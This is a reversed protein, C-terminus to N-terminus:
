HCHSRNQWEAEKAKSLAGQADADEGRAGSRTLAPTLTRAVAQHRPLRPECGLGLRM